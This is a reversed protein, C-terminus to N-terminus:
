TLNVASKSLTMAWSTYDSNSLNIQNEFILLLMLKQICWWPFESLQLYWCMSFLYCIPLAVSDTNHLNDTNETSGTKDIKDTNCQRVNYKTTRELCPFMDFRQFYYLLALADLFFCYITVNQWHCHKEECQAEAKQEKWDKGLVIPHHLKIFYM